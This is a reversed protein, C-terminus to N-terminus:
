ASLYLSIRASFRLEYEGGETPEASLNKVDVDVHLGGSFRMTEETLPTSLIPYFCLEVCVASTESLLMVPVKVLYQWKMGRKCDPGLAGAFTVRCQNLLPYAKQVPGTLGPCPMRRRQDTLHLYARYLAPRASSSLTM